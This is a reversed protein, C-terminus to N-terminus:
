NRISNRRSNRQNKIDQPITVFQTNRREIEVERIELPKNTQHEPATSTRRSITEPRSNTYRNKYAKYNDDNRKSYYDNKYNYKSSYNMPNKQRYKTHNHPQWSYYHKPYYNWKWNSYYARYNSNWFLSLLIPTRYYVPKYILSTGYLNRNGIIQINISNYNNKEVNITAVDQYIERDVVAQILVLHSNNEISEVVRLYDVRNDNNLDLNSVELEPDNLRMEFDELNKAEGFLTAVASLDLDASIKSNMANIQTYNQAQIPTIICTGILTLFFLKTKM